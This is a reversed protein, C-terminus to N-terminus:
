KIGFAKAFYQTFTTKGAGLDGSLTVIEGGRLMNAFDYALKQTDTLNSCIKEM